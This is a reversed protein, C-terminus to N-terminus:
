VDKKLRAWSADKRLRSWSADKQLVKLPSKKLWQENDKKLIQGADRKIRSWSSEKKRWTLSTEEANLLENYSDRDQDRKSHLKNCIKENEFINLNDIIHGSHQDFTFQSM